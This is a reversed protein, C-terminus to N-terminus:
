STAASTRGSTNRARYGYDARCSTRCGIRRNSAARSAPGYTYRYLVTIRFRANTDCREQFAKGANRIAPGTVAYRDQNIERYIIIWGLEKIWVGSSGTM